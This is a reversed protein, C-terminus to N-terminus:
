MGKLLQWFYEDTIVLLGNEKQHKIAEPKKSPGVKRSTIFVNTKGSIVSTCKAGFQEELISRIKKKDEGSMGSIVVKKGNFYSIDSIEDHNFVLGDTSVTKTGFRTHRRNTTDNKRKIESPMYEEEHIYRNINTESSLLGFLLGCARADDVAKHHDPLTTGFYEYYLDQLNERKGLSHAIEKTDAWKSYLKPLGYYKELQYIYNLDAGKSHVVLIKDGIVQKMESFLENYSPANLLMDKSIHKLHKKAWDNAELEGIPKIYFHFPTKQEKGEKFVVLGVECVSLQSDNLKEFDIAVYDM